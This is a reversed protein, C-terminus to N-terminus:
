FIPTMRWLSILFISKWALDLDLYMGWMEDHLADCAGIKKIYGKIWRGDYNRFLGGCRSTDGGGKPAGDSNLKIWEDLPKKWNVYITEKHNVNRHLL